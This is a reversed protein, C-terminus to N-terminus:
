LVGEKQILGEIMVDEDFLSVKVDCLKIADKMFEKGHGLVPTKANIGGIIRPNIFSIVRDVIGSELASANLTGGGELLVSDVNLGYLENM